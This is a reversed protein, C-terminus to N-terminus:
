RVCSEKAALAYFARRKAALRESRFDNARAVNERVALVIRDRDGLVSCIREALAEVDGATVLMDSPLLEPIGGARAGIAVCGRAMAEALARPLGESRSFQVYLDLSDLFERVAAGAPRKKHLVVRESIGERAACARLEEALPGEGLFHMEVDVGARVCLAISRVTEVPGKIAYLQGITGVRMRGRREGVRDVRSAAQVFAEPPLLVDSAGVTFADQRAPYLSQLHRETVYLVGNAGRVARRTRGASVRRFPERVAYPLPIARGVEAPDGVLEVVYAKGQASLAWSLRIGTWGPLRLIFVGSLRAVEGIRRGVEGWRRVYAAPGLYWPVEVYTVRPGTSAVLGAPVQEVKQTRAFVTVSDFHELYRDWYGPYEIHASYLTGDHEIFRTELSVLVNM